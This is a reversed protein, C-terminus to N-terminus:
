NICEQFTRCRHRRMQFVPVIGANKPDQFFELPLHMIADYSGFSPWVDMDTLWFHTTKVNDIARNRLTNIPFYFPDTQIVYDVIINPRLNSEAKLSLFYSENEKPFYYVISMPGRWRRSVELMFGWRTITGQSCFTVDYEVDPADTSHFVPDFDTPRYPNRHRIRREYRPMPPRKITQSTKFLSSYASEKQTNESKSQIPARNGNRIRPKYNVTDLNVSGSGFGTRVISLKWDDPESLSTALYFPKRGNLSGENDSKFWLRIMVSEGMFLEVVVFCVIFLTVGLIYQVSAM